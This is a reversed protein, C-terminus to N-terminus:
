EVGNSSVPTCNVGKIIVHMKSSLPSCKVSLYEVRYLWPVLTISYATLKLIDNYDEDKTVQGSQRKSCNLSFLLFLLREFFFCVFGAQLRLKNGLNFSDKQLM